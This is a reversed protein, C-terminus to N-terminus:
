KKLKSAAKKEVRNFEQVVHVILGACAGGVIVFTILQGWWEGHWINEIHWGDGGVNTPLGVTLVAICLIIPITTGIRKKFFYKLLKM